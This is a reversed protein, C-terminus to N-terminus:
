LLAQGLTRPKRFTRNPQSQGWKQSKRCRFIIGNQNEAPNIKGLQNRETRKGMTHYIFTLASCSTRAYSIRRNRFYFLGLSSCTDQRRTGISHIISSLFSSQEVNTKRRVILEAQLPAYFILARQRSIRKQPRARYLEQKMSFIHRVMSGNFTCAWKRKRAIHKRWPVNEVFKTNGSISKQGQETILVMISNSEINSDNGDGWLSMEQKKLRYLLHNITM